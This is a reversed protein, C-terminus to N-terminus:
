DFGVSNRVGRAAMEMNGGDLDIRRIEGSGGPPVCNNCPPGVAIHLKGDPGVAIFRAGHTECAM